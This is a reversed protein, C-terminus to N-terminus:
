SCSENCGDPHGSVGRSGAPTGFGSGSLARFTRWRRRGPASVPNLMKHDLM